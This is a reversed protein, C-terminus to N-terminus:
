CTLGLNLSSCNFYFAVLFIPKSSDGHAISLGLYWCFLALLFLLCSEQQQRVHGQLPLLIPLSSYASATRINILILERERSWCCHWVHWFHLELAKPISVQGPCDVALASARVPIGYAMLMVAGKKIVAIFILMVTTWLLVSFHHLAPCANTLWLKHRRVAIHSSDWTGWSEQLNLTLTDKNWQQLRVTTM